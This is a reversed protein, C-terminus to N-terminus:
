WYHLVNRGEKDTANLDIHLTKAYMVLYQVMQAHGYLAAQMLLTRSQSDVDVHCGANLLFKLLNIHGGAVCYFLVNAGYKDKYNIDLDLTAAMKVLYEVMDTKGKDSSEMLVTSGNLAPIVRAGRKILLKFADLHCGAFIACFLCRSQM